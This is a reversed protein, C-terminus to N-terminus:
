NKEKLFYKRKVVGNTYIYMQLTNLKFKTERGLLDTIMLLESNFREEEELSLNFDIQQYITDSICGLDDTAYFYYIGNDIPFFIEGGGNSNIQFYFNNPGFLEYSYPPQGGSVNAILTNASLYVIASPNEISLNTTIISDCGNNTSLTDYYIGNQSYNNFGVAWTEGECITINQYDFSNPVVTLVTSVNSDCGNQDQLINFYMGPTSYNSSGISYSEGTCISQENVYTLSGNVTLNTIVISDCLLTSILTDYYTGSFFYTNSISSISDGMCITYNLVTTISPIVYLNLSIISDCLFANILTDIYIGSGSYNNNGVPYIDGYCITDVLQINSTQLTILITEIISDCGFINTLTDMYNGSINYYNNGVNFSDSACISPEFLYYFTDCPLSLYADLTILSGNYLNISLTDSIYGSASFVVQYLGSDLVATHYNGLLNTSSIINTNLIEINTNSITIGSYDDFVTGNIHCAQQFNRGYILLQGNGNNSNIESSIINGSPLFPYTGWCGDFGNGSGSYSDYYGVQVMFDPYTIDHVTTGDRYYSTILFNGDVFTNHPISNSGPNSQIRDVEQFNAIDTVDYAAIYAGSKEDTTFVYNGDDSVWANHTFADPTTTSGLTIPNSKDSVDVAFVKGAYVCGAWLTDNRVMADHIYEDNWEGLYEPNIPNNTPDLFIAGNAPTSFGAPNSAGFIYIIGNEDIFLDHAAEFHLTDTSNYFDKVHWYSNGSMDNLDIILLGADSETTVYAYHSWTKVDRWISYIDAIFFKEVPATPNTIDVVSVGNRLGVIAYENSISDVWGWIDNGQTTPYDYSGLLSMNLSDQSYSLVPLLLVLLIKKM